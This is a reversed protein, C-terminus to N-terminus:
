VRTKRMIVIGERFVVAAEGDVFAILAALDKGDWARAEGAKTEVAIRRPGTSRDKFLKMYWGSGSDLSARILSV